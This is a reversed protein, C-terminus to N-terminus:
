VKNRRSSIIHSLTRSDKIKKNCNPALFVELRYTTKNRNSFVNQWMIQSEGTEKARLRIVMEFHSVFNM